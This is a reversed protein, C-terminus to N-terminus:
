NELQKDPENLHAEVEMRFAESIPSVQHALDQFTDKEAESIEPHRSILIYKYYRKEAKTLEGLDSSESKQQKSKDLFWDSSSHNVDKLECECNKSHPLEPAVKENYDEGFNKGEELLCVLPTNKNIDVILQQGRIGIFKRSISSDIKKRRFKIFIILFALLFIILFELSFVRM